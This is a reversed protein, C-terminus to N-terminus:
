SGRRGSGPRPRSACTPSATSRLSTVIMCGGERLIRFGEALLVNTEPVHEMVQFCTVTDATAGCLPLCASLSAFVKAQSVDHFSSPWDIGIYDDAQTLIDDRYQATGCGLDVVRGRVFPRVREFVDNNIQHALWNFSLRDIRNM